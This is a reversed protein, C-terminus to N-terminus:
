GCGGPLRAASGRSSVARGHDADTFAPRNELAPRRGRAAAGYSTRVGLLDDLYTEYPAFILDVKPSDLNLWALDSQFYDDSLLADARLRLYNAFAADDSLAAAERLLQAMPQLWPRYVVHYPVAELGAGHRRVISHSDYLATRDDPHAAVYREFEARTLDAPYLNRGPPVPATGVFPANNRILDYRGGNIRLFRRLNQAEVSNERQLQRYLQLGEPDSQQWYIRDLYRCDEVLKGVM